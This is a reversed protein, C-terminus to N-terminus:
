IVVLREFSITQIRRADRNVFSKDAVYKVGILAEINQDVDEYASDLEFFEGLCDKDTLIKAIANTAVGSFGSLIIIKRRQGEMCFPNNAVILIGYMKGPSKGDKSVPINPFYRYEQPGLVQAVGEEEQNEKEWYFSSRTYKKEKIIVFGKKEVRGEVYPTTDHLKALVIEAFDSVDPSGIIICDKDELLSRMDTMRDALREAQELDQGHLKSIPDEIIVRVNPYNSAFFRNIDLVGRYDWLDINTRGGYGRRNNPDHPIDRGCTFIHVNGNTAIPGWFRNYGYYEQAESVKRKAQELQITTQEYERERARVLAATLEDTSEPRHLHKLLDPVLNPDCKPDLLVYMRRNEKDRLHYLDLFMQWEKSVWDSKAAKGSCYLVFHQSNKVAKELESPFEKGRPLKRSWFARLGFQEMKQFILRVDVEDEHAFSIFVDYQYKRSM